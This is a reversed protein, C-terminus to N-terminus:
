PSALPTIQAFDDDDLDDISGATVPDYGSLMAEQLGPETAILDLIRTGNISGDGGGIRWQESIPEVDRVRRVGTAPFGEQSMVVVAYAWDAPSGDGFLEQAIRVTVRGKDSFVLVRFTPESETTGGDPDAVYLAPYWGEVTLARDWGSGPQWSANRGPLFRRAGSDTDPDTDVYVDFTQISLGNPSDWSNLVPAAVDFTFVLDDESQGVSFATLDYSGPLFLPDTPYTYTGPGHDDGEPDAIDLVTAVDSINPVIMVGPGSTPAMVSEPGGARDVLRFKLPDGFQIPGLSELPISFEIRTGDFGAELIDPEELMGADV